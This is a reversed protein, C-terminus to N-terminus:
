PSGKQVVVGAPPRSCQYVITKTDVTPVPAHPDLVDPPITTGSPLIQLVPLPPATTTSGDDDGNGNNGPRTTTPATTTPAATTTPSTPQGPAALDGSVLRALCENGPLYIRVARREPAPPEAWDLIPQDALAADMYAKWIKDPYTGGQVKSVGDKVFEPINNMPTYGDPDGVWVATTLQPTFGVFWANTNSDQTGTKGAAIRGGALQYHRGTGRTVVGKLTDVATLAVGQDLVQVGPDTHTYLRTGDARDIAEVYYPDHHLGENGLTQAGSAMDLPSMENAGIAFTAYPEITPHESTPQGEYLYASHAMRYTTDVVRHLGVAQALRSYACNISLWTMVSLTNVPQSVADTIEFPVKPDNPDPLTCPTTGDILDNPQVGAELAAALIFIKISSGTQRPSLALNVANQNADFGSGGVMARVAGTSTDLSVMASEFGEANAPLQSRAAEAAAQLNPDLTTHIQLGGRYLLNARAQETDGLLNSQELLYKRLADTYYTPKTPESFVSTVRAPLVFTDFDQQEESADIIGADDLRKLVQRFRDRSPEPRRIPDYGSPSRILGALFAGEVLTLDGVDKGFYVGAAAQLGYANNGFFITNLYRELIAGKDMQKELMSAYHIQLFKYRGDRPLGALFENKVVQQTITSAGQRASDSSVNSLTARLLSRVNVGHHGYFGEDEVALIAALVADPVEDLTIPQRNEREFVATPNGAADYVVTRQSLPEFPPLTVPIQEHANAIAWLRPAVGVVTATILLAGALVVAALRVV